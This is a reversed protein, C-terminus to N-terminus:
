GKLIEAAMVSDLSSSQVFASASLSSDWFKKMQQLYTLRKYWAHPSQLLLLIVSTVQECTHLLGDCLWVEPKESGARCRNKESARQLRSPTCRLICPTQSKEKGMKFVTERNEMFLGSPSLEDTFGPLTRSTLQLPLSSAKSSLIYSSVIRPSISCTRSFLEALQHHSPKRASSTSSFYAVTHLPLFITLHCLLYPSHPPGQVLHIPRRLSFSFSAFDLHYIFLILPLRCFFFIFFLPPTFCHCLFPFFLSHMFVLMKDVVVNGDCDWLLVRFSNSEWGM